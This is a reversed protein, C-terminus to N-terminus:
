SYSDNEGLAVVIPSGRHLLNRVNEGRERGDRNCRRCHRACLTEAEPDPAVPIIIAVTIVIAAGAGLEVFMVAPQMAAPVSMIAVPRYDNLTVTVPVVLLSHFHGKVPAM